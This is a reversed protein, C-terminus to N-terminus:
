GCLSTVFVGDFVSSHGRKVSANGETVGVARRMAAVLMVSTERQKEGAQDESSRSQCDNEDSVRPFLM